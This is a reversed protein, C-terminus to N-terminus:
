ARCAERRRDIGTEAELRDARHGRDLGQLGPLALEDPESPSARLRAHSKASRHATGASRAAVAQGGRAPRSGCGSFAGLVHALADLRAPTPAPRPLAAADPGARAARRAPPPSPALHGFARRAAEAPASPMCGDGLACPGSRMAVSHHRLCPAAPLARSSCPRPRLRGGSRATGRLGRDRSAALRAPEHVSKECSGREGAQRAIPNKVFGARLEGGGKHPLLPAEALLHTLATPRCPSAVRVPSARAPSPTDANTSRITSMGEGEGKPSAERSGGRLGRGALPSLCSAGPLRSRTLPHRRKREVTSLGEGEGKPESRPKRRSARGRLRPSTFPRGQHGVGLEGDGGVEGEQAAGRMRLLHHRGRSASPRAAIPM